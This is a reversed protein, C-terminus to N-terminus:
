LAILAEDDESGIYTRSGVRLTCNLVLGQFNADLVSRPIRVFSTRTGRHASSRGRGLAKPCCPLLLGEVHPQQKTSTLGERQGTGSTSHRQSGASAKATLNRRRGSRTCM